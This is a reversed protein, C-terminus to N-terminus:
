YYINIMGAGGNGCAVNAITSTAIYSCGGGGGGPVQGSTPYSMVTLVNTTLNLYSKEGLGATSQFTYPASGGDGFNKNRVFDTTSIQEFHDSHDFGPQGELGFFSLCNSCFNNGITANGGGYSGGKAQIESGNVILNTFHGAEGSNGSNYLPGLGIGGGGIIIDAIQGPVVAIIGRTYGGGDGGSGGGGIGSKNGGEGGGWVEVLIKTVGTPVTWTFAYESTNANQVSYFNKFDTLNAPNAWTMNGGTNMSLVQGVQGAQGNTKIAGNSVNLNGNVHLIETPNNTGIGLFQAILRPSNLFFFLLILKNIKM